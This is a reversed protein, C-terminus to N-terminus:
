AMSKIEQKYELLGVLLISNVSLVLLRLEVVGSLLSMSRV